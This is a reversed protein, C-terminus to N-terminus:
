RSITCIDKSIRFIAAKAPNANYM